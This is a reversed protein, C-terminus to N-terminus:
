NRTRVAVDSIDTPSNEDMGEEEEDVDGAGTSDIPEMNVVGLNKQALEKHKDTIDIDSSVLDFLTTQFKQFAFQEEKYSTANRLGRSRSSVDTKLSEIKKWIEWSERQSKEPVLVQTIVAAIGTIIAAITTFYPYEKFLPNTSIVTLIGAAITAIRLCNAARAKARYREHYGIKFGEAKVWLERADAVLHSVQNDKLM